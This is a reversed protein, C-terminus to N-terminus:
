ACVGGQLAQEMALGARSLFIEFADIARLPRNAPYSDGYLLAIVKGDNILPGVFVEDPINGSM